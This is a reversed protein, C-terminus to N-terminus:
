ADVASEFTPAARTGDPLELAVLERALPRLESAMRATALAVHTPQGNAAVHLEGLMATYSSNFRDVLTRATAFGDYDSAKPNTPLPLVGSPDTTIPQGGYIYRERPPADPLADPNKVIRRGHFIMAFKYYHALDLVQDNPDFEPSQGTGEGQGVIIDIAALASDLDTVAQVNPLGAANARIQRGPDGIFASSGRRELVEAIRSYFLGITRPPEDLAIVEFDLPLEPEEIEMFVERVLQRSFPALRVQLGAQVGGPLPCPFTPVFAPTNLSPSLGLANMVNCVLAMHGMEDLVVSRILNSVSTNVEPLLSYYTYLYPPITAHELELASQLSSALGEDTDLGEFM